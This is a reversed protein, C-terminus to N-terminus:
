YNSHLHPVAEFGHSFHAQSQYAVACAQSLVRQLSVCKLSLVKKALRQLLVCKSRLVERALGYTDFRM